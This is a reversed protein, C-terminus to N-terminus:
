LLVSDSTLQMYWGLNSPIRTLAVLVGVQCFSSFPLFLYDPLFFLYLRYTKIAFSTSMRSGIYVHRKSM